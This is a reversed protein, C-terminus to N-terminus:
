ESVEIRFTMTVGRYSVTVTHTGIDDATFVRGEYDVTANTIYSSQGHVNATIKMGDVSFTEGVKYTLKTPASALKVDSVFGDAVIYGYTDLVIDEAADEMLILRHDSSYFNTNTAGIGFTLVIRNLGPALTVILEENQAGYNEVMYQIKVPNEAHSYIYIIGVNKGNAPACWNLPMSGSDLAGRGAFFNGATVGKAFTVTTMYVGNELKHVGSIGDVVYKASTTDSAAYALMDEQYLATLKLNGTLVIDKVTDLTYYNKGADIFGEFTKGSALVVTESVKCGVMTNKGSEFTAGVLTIVYAPCHQEARCEGDLNACLGCDPCLTDCVHHGPCKDECLECDLDLCKGCKDCPEWCNHKGWNDAFNFVTKIAFHDSSFYKRDPATVGDPLEERLITYTNAIFESSYLIYDIPLVHSRNGVDSINENGAGQYQGYGSFTNEKGIEYNKVTAEYHSDNLGKMFREYAPMAGDTNLAFNFDGTIIVPYGENYHAHMREMIMEASNIWLADSEYGIHTNYYVFTKGSAKDTLKAWTTVRKYQAGYKSWISSTNPTDSMWFYGWDDLTFRLSNYWIGAGENGLDSTVMGDRYMIINKYGFKGLTDKIAATWLSNEEQTGLIDPMEALLKNLLNPKNYQNQVGNTGLNFSMVTMSNPDFHGECRTECGEFECLQNACKGCTECQASAHDIVTILYTATKGGFTITVTKTGADAATFVHGDFNTVYNKSIYVRSWSDVRNAITSSSGKLVLGDATFKEGVYYTTKNAARYISLDKDNGEALFEGWIALSANAKADETFVIQHNLGVTNNDHTVTMLVTKSEGVALTLTVAGKDYYYDIASYKFTIESSGTNTFHMRVIKPVNGYQPIACNYGAPGTTEYNSNNWFSIGSHAKTGNPLTVLAAYAGNSLVVHQATISTDYIYAGSTDPAKGDPGEPAGLYTAQPAFTVVKSMDRFACKDTHETCSDILCGGCVNCVGHAGCVCDGNADYKHAVKTFADEHACTPAYWHYEADYSYEDAFTHQHNLAPIAQTKTQGCDTCTFTNVGDATETPATTVKGDDWKHLYNVITDDHGCLSAYWHYNENKSWEEAFRHNHPLKDISEQKEYGCTKCFYSTIGEEDETPQKTIEGKGFEHQGNNKKLNHGCTAAHWHYNEDSTWEDSYEHTHGTTGIVEDYYYGCEICTYIMIGEESETAPKEVYGDDFIHPAKDKDEHGCTSAHWHNIEDSSWESDYTHKHELKAIAETKEYGCTKCTYTMIGEAEETAPTTVQGDGFNHSNENLKEACSEDVCVQWHGNADSEWEASVEHQHSDPLLFAAGAVILALIAIIILFKKM